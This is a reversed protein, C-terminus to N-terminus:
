YHAAAVRLHHPKQLFAAETELINLAEKLGAIEAERKAKREEYTEPVAVCMGDLKQGYELVADLETAVGAKDSSLESVTKDLSKAEATLYKVDQDKQTKTLKNEQTTKDYTAAADSEEMEAQALNKSFDSEAVELMSIISGGAGSSASHGAPPAPQQVFSAAGYYDRLVQLAGQIGAIGKELDAKTQAYATSEDMRTKDM